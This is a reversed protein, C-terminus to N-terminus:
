TLKGLQGETANFTSGDKKRVTYHCDYAGGDPSGKFDAKIVTGTLDPDITGNQRLWGARDGVKFKYPTAM